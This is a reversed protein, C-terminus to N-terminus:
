SNEFSDQKHRLQKRTKKHQRSKIHQQYELEGNCVCCCKECYYKRWPLPKKSHESSFPVRYKTVLEQLHDLENELFAKTLQIADNRVSHPERASMDLKYLMAHALLPSDHSAWTNRYWSEQKRAYKRTAGQLGNICKSLIENLKNRDNPIQENGTVLV